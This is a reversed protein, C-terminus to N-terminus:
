VACAIEPYMRQLESEWAEDAVLRGQIAIIKEQLQEIAERGNQCRRQADQKAWSIVLSKDTSFRYQYMLEGAHTVNPWGPVECVHEVIKGPEHSYVKVSGSFVDEANLANLVDEPSADNLLPYEKLLLLCYRNDGTVAGTALDVMILDRIFQSGILLQGDNISVIHNHIGFTEKFTKWGM